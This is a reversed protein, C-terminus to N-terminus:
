PKLSTQGYCITYPAGQGSLWGIRVIGGSSDEAMIPWKNNTSSTSGLQTKSQAVGMIMIFTSANTATLSDSGTWEQWAVLVIGAPGISLMPDSQNLRTGPNINTWVSWTPASLNLNLSSYKVLSNSNNNDSGDWALRLTNSKDIALSVHKQNFGEVGAVIQVPSWTASGTNWRAYKIRTGTQSSVGGYWATYLNGNQDVVADPRSQGSSDLLSINEWSTWTNGSDTSMCHKIQQVGASGSNSGEWLVHLVDNKGVVIIPHEQWYTNSSYGTVPSINIWASWAAGNWRAYKIQRENAGTYVQDRGYWVVHIQNKSDIAISPVRQDTGTGGGQTTGPAAPPANVIAVSGGGLNTWTKGSDKSVAVYIEEQSFGPPAKRYAVYINGTSDVAMKRQGSYGLGKSDSIQDVPSLSTSLSALSNSTAGPQGGSTGGNGQGRPDHGQGPSSTTPPVLFITMGSVALAIMSVALLTTLARVHSKHAKTGKRTRFHDRNLDTEARRPTRNRSFAGIAVFLGLVWGILLLWFLPITSLAGLWSLPLALTSAGNLVSNGALYLHFLSSPSLVLIAAIIITVISATWGLSSLISKRSM